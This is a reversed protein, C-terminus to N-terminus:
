RVAAATMENARRRYEALLKKTVPGPAGTGITRDDVQVIPMLEKTTSTFFAEDADLLDQDRLAAEEVALGASAGLEFVFARTIGALLGADLAPTRVTGDAVIFLNSQSCESLEGRYNRFVGEVGGKRIAQQMCLANNLLNNSKILPNVSRPHNRIIDVMSVKVGRRYQEEPTVPLPKVIVVVSPHPTAAPDYTLDGIGRTFLIRIYAEAYSNDTRRGLDAANMTDISRQLFEHDTFPVDLAIMEASARLRRLHRDFLFPEGNYTRITEYVGEGYLFGHDFVSIAARAGDAILGNVNVFVSM